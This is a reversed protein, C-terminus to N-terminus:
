KGSLSVLKLSVADRIWRFRGQDAKCVLHLGSEIAKGDKQTALIFRDGRKNIALETATVLAPYGDQGMIEMVLERRCLDKLEEKSDMKLEPIMEALVLRLPVGSYSVEKGEEKVKVSITKEKYKEMDKWSISKNVPLQTAAKAPAPEAPAAQAAQLSGVQIQGPQGTLCNYVFLVSLGVTIPRSNALNFM